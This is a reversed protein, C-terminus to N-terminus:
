TDAGTRQLARIWQFDFGRKGHFRFALQHWEDLDTEWSRMFQYSPLRLVFFWYEEGDGYDITGAVFWRAPIAEYQKIRM